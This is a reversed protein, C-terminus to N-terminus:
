MCILKDSVTSSGLSIISLGQKPNLIQLKNQSWKVTALGFSDKHMIKRFFRKFYFINEEFVWASLTMRFTTEVIMTIKM